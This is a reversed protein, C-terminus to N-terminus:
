NARSDFRTSVILNSPHFSPSVPSFLFASFLFLPSYPPFLFLFLPPFSRYLPILPSVSAAPYDDRSTALKCLPKQQQQQQQQKQQQQLQQSKPRTKVNTDQQRKSKHLKQQRSNKANNHIFAAFRLSLFPSSLSSPPLSASICFSDDYCARSKPRDIATTKSGQSQDKAAVRHPLTSLM